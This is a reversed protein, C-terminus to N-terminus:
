FTQAKDAQLDKDNLPRLLIKNGDAKPLKGILDFTERNHWECELRNHTIFHYDVEIGRDTCMQAYKLLTKNPTPRNYIYKNIEESGSQFGSVTSFMGADVAADLLEPYKIVQEPYMQAFFPLEVHKKYEKFFELLYKIKHKTPHFM